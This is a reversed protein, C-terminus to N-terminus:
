NESAQFALILIRTLKGRPSLEKGVQLHDSKGQRRVCHVCIHGQHRLLVNIRVSSPRIRIVEWKVKIVELFVGHGLITVSPILAVVYFTPPM